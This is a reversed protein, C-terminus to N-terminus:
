RGNIRGYLTLRALRKKREKRRKWWPKVYKRWIYVQIITGLIALGYIQLMSTMRVTAQMHFMGDQVIMEVFCEKFIPDHIRM